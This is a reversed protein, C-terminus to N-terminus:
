FVGRFYIGRELDEAVEDGPSKGKCSGNKLPFARPVLNFGSSILIVAEFDRGRQTACVRLPLTHPYGGGRAYPESKEVENWVKQKVARAYKFVCFYPSNQLRFFEYFRAIKVQCNSSTVTFVM